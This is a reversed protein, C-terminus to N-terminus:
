AAQEAGPQAHLLLPISALQAGRLVEQPCASAPAGGVGRFRGGGGALQPLPHGGRVVGDGAQVKVPVQAEPGLVDVHLTSIVLRQGVPHSRDSSGPPPAPGPVAFVGRQGPWSSDAPPWPAGDSVPLSVGRSHSM